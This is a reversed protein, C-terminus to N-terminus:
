VTVTLQLFLTNTPIRVRIILRHNYILRLEINYLPGVLHLM